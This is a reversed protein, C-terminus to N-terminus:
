IKVKIQLLLQIQLLTLLSLGKAPLLCVPDNDVPNIIEKLRTIRSQLISEKPEEEWGEVKAWETATRSMSEGQARAWMM